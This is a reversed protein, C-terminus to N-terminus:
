KDIGKPYIRCKIQSYNYRKLDRATWYRKQCIKTIAKQKYLDKNKNFHEVDTIVLLCSVPKYEGTPCFLTYQLTIEKM